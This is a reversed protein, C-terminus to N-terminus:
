WPSFTARVDVLPQRIEGPAWADIEAAVPPWCRALEAVPPVHIRDKRGAPQFAIVDIGFAAMRQALTSFM